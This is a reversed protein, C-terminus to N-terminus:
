NHEYMTNYISYVIDHMNYLMNFILMISDYYVISEIHLILILTIM